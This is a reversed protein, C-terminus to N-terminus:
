VGPADRLLANGPDYPPAALVRAAIAEGLVLVSLDDAEAGPTLYALALSKGTRHGIAASTVMGVPEGGQLVTHHAFPYAAADLALLVMRWADGSAARALLADRGVFDRGDAKVLFGLGAEIPTRETTLDGGWGRYGKELRLSNLAYVGFHRIGAPGGAAMLADHLRALDGLGAHLEWGLEGAYSLRLARLAVGAVSIERASLWPFAANGLDADTVTALVDRADPGVVALIGIDETRNAIEVGGFRAARARLLDEDHREAAAASTLYFRDEALRTVTFESAVGGAPTLAHTLGIRGPRSPPRNAGLTELFAAADPGTVDFKAFASLDAIGVADRM